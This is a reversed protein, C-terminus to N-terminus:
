LLMTEERVYNNNNKRKGTTTPLLLVFFFKCAKSLALLIHLALDVTGKKLWSQLSLVGAPTTPLQPSLLSFHNSDM